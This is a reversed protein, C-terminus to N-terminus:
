QPYGRRVSAETGGGCDLVDGLSRFKTVEELIGAGTVISEKTLPINRRSGDCVLCIYSTVCVLFNLGTCM